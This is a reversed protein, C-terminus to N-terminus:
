QPQPALAGDAVCAAIRDEYPNSCSPPKRSAVRNSGCCRRADRRHRRSARLQQSGAPGLVENMAAEAEPWRGASCLVSGYASRCHTHLVRPRGNFRDLVMAQVLTTWEEARRVDGVRDCSSLMSCFSKGVVSMDHVEGAAIAALAADLRDFGEQVRGQTVLALGSDALARM